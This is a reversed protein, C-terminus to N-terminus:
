KLAKKQYFGRSSNSIAWQVTVGEGESVGEGTNSGLVGHYESHPNVTDLRINIVKSPGEM